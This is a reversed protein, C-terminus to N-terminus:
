TQWIMQENLKVKPILIKSLMFLYLQISLFFKLQCYPEFSLPSKGTIWIDHNPKLELQMM